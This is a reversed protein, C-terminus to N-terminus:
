HLPAFVVGNPGRSFTTYTYASQIHLSESGIIIKVGPYVTKTVNVTGFGIKALRGKLQEHEELLAARATSLTELHKPLKELREERDPPLRGAAKMKLLAEHLATIDSFNKESSALERILAQYREALFPDTGVEVVTDTVTSDSGIIHATVADRAAVRSGMILGKGVLNVSGGCRVSAGLIYSTELTGGSSVRGGQIFRCTLNGEASIEGDGGGHFGGSIVLVGGASVHASEVVGHIHIDGTAQVSFGPMVDGTIVVNGSFRINGTAVSVHGSVTFTDLVHIKGRTVSAQGTIAATLRLGDESLVVNKGMPMPKDRGRKAPISAGLVNRGPVGAGALRKECLLTGKEVREMIDLDKFDISGDPKVKPRLDRELRITYRLEADRGNACSLGEAVVVPVGYVPAAALAELRDPKIGFTIAKAALLASLQPVTLDSGGYEPPHLILSAQLKDAGIQVQGSANVPPPDPRGEGSCIREETM